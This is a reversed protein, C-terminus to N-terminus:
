SSGNEAFVRDVVTELRCEVNYQGNELQERLAQVKWARFTSTDEIWEGSHVPGTITAGQPPTLTSSGNM